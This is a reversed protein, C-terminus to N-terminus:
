SPHDSFAKNLFHCKHQSKVSLFSVIMGRNSPFKNWVSPGILHTSIRTSINFLCRFSLRSFWVPSMFTSHCSLRPGCPFLNSITLFFTQLCHGPPMGANPPKSSSSSSVFHNLTVLGHFVSSFKLHLNGFFLKLFSVTAMRTLQWRSNLYYSSPSNAKCFTPSRFLHCCNSPITLSM